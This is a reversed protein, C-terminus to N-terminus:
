CGGSSRTRWARLRLQHRARRSRASSGACRRGRGDARAGREADIANGWSKHMERAPRTACREYALVSRYPARGDLTVAMFCQSYFWLRIQERMESVWDAPFWEEWYAHDPLDAGTLGAAAGTANGHEVWTQNQWGLTSFHVIGADLWADGVEAIRRVDDRGCAECRITVDDIWPRHLEQLRRARGDRAGRARRALRDREAHGCACPYFPLPLGFYRKRSINWDGMNRLWDDMRKATCRRRGRRRDRQRRADAAPDRRRLHVLRRRGPLRAADQLALLDPLPPHDRGGPRAARARRLVRDGARRGRRRPGDLTATAPSCGGRRTSRRSCPCATSARSSSTRPAPARRSTSSAPARTSRSRTGRSSATTSARSRRCSTSPGAYELGVLEAGRLREVFTTTRSSTSPSGTATRAAATSPTPSSRPRSTRRCRGPRRRGSSSRRARADRLPFRVFLSPHELEVYNEEGAQEHQSLSTGCRPCWQTSRHGKYLWGRPAGGQPLALHVRHEHRLVHLLQQGLGDVHRPAEVARHAGRRVARGAGQLARRVRRPRVGRDRAELQARAGERGRGRGLPGPLRLREPLAPRLGCRRTASSSTRSCAGWRPPRGDPQEGHDPRRHLQVDPRRPEPRAAQSRGRTRGSRSSRGSSRPHDPFAPLPAFLRRCAKSELSRSCYATRGRKPWPLGFFPVYGFPLRRLRSSRRSRPSRPSSPSATRTSKQASHHPGQWATEGTSSRIASSRAPSSFSTLTLMSSFWSRAARKPTM